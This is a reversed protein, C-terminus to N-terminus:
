VNVNHLWVDNTPRSSFTSVTLLDQMQMDSMWIPEKAVFWRLGESCPPTTLSGQYTFFDTYGLVESIAHNLNITVNGVTRNERFDPSRGLQSFFESGASQAHRDIMFGVVARPNDNADYHVFHMEARPKWGDITHEAPTHIHWSKFYVTVNKGNEEFHMSPKKGHGDYAFQPGFDWNSVSGM